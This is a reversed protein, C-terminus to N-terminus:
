MIVTNVNTIHGEQFLKLGLWFALSYSAYIAFFMLGFQVGIVIAM